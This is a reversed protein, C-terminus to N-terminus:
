LRIVTELSLIKRTKLDGSGDVEFTYRTDCLLTVSESVDMGLQYGYFSDVTREFFGDGRLGINNKQYYALARGLHPVRDLARDLLEVRATLRQKTRDGQGAMLSKYGSLYQYNATLDAMEGLTATAEGFIGDVSVGESLGPLSAEKTSALGTKSDIRARDLDYLNDFYEPSFQDAFHRYELQAQLAGATASIGPAAIGFGKSKRGTRDDMIRAYQAYLLLSVRDNELIPYGVDFGFVGFADKEATDLNFPHKRESKVAVSDAIPPDIGMLAAVTAPPLGSESDTDIRNDNNDDIDTRDDIGDGDSDAWRKRDRPFDDIIDPVGDEDSDRLGSYQDMDYVVTAGIELRGLIPMGALPHAYLRGGLLAGDNRLDEISGVVSELGLGLPSIDSASLFLGTRKFAPYDLTNRYGKMILGYGLTIDDLAGVRAYLRDEPHGYRIYYIKRSLSELTATGTSFDWAKRDINGRNDLFLELDLAVGLNGLPIEPRLNLRYWQQPGLTVLGASGGVTIGAEDEGRNVTDDQAEVIGGTVLAIALFLSSIVKSIREM